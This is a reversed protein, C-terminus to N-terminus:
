KAQRRTTGRAYDAPTLGNRRLEDRVVSGYGSANTRAWSDAEPIRIGVLSFIRAKQHHALSEREAEKAAMETGRAVRRAQFTKYLWHLMAIIAALVLGGVVTEIIATLM